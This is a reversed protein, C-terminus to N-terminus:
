NRQGHQGCSPNILVIDYLSESLRRRLVHGRASEQHEDYGRGDLFIQRVGKVDAPGFSSRIEGPRPTKLGPAPMPPLDPASSTGM